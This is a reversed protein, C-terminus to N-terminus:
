YAMPSSGCITLPGSYSMIVKENNHDLADVTITYVDETKSVNVSGSQFLKYDVLNYYNDSVSWYTGQFRDDVLAGAM